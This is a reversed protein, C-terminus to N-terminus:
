GYRIVFGDAPREGRETVQVGDVRAGSPGERCEALMAEVTESSGSFVAEVSGDERNRVHGCLGHALARRETWARYGVGQVRGTIVAEVTRDSM